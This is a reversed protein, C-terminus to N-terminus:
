WYSCCSLPRHLENLDTIGQAELGFTHKLRPLNAFIIGVGTKVISSSEIIQRLSPALLDAVCDGKHLGIHFLGIDSESAVQILSTQEQLPRGKWIDGNVDGEEKERDFM